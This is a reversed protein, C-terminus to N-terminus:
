VTLALRNAFLQTHVVSDPVDAFGIKFLRFCASDM